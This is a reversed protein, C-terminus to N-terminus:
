RRQDSLSIRGKSGKRGSGRVGTNKISKPGKKSLILRHDIEMNMRVSGRVPLVGGPLDELHGPFFPQPSDGKRVMIGDVRNGLTKLQGFFEAQFENGTQFPVGKVVAEVEMKEGIEDVGPIRMQLIPQFADM